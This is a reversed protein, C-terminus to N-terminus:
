QLVAPVFYAANGTIPGGVRAVVASPRGDVLFSGWLLRGDVPGQLTRIRVTPLEVRRQYVAPQEWYMAEGDRDVSAGEADFLEVAGGERGFIPKRVYPASGHFVNDMYTPLMYTKISEHEERTFFTRQEHLSWILAQLAKTQAIFASPPNIVALKRRAILDLVHAGTPYGDEDREEALKEFAHLRYLVDIPTHTGGDEELVCLRDRYVRLRSLAAFRGGLGSREMLYRTTGADEEHWDLASFVIGLPDAEYGLSRYRSVAAGFAETLGAEMGENPDLAGIADCVAGNVRFAEVVSTPTDSNWELMKVGEPTEVFDFRGIVTAADGVMPLRVAAHTEKPLGLDQLLRDDAERVVSVVRAYIRGLRESAEALERRLSHTLAVTDAVAYEEGDITDWTFIGSERLPAYWMERKEMYEFAMRNTM